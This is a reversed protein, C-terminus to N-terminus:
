ELRGAYGLFICGQFLSRPRCITREDLEFVADPPKKEGRRVRAGGLVAQVSMSGCCPSEFFVPLAGAPEDSGGIARRMGASSQARTLLFSCYPSKFRRARTQLAKLAMKSTLQAHKKPDTHLRHASVRM